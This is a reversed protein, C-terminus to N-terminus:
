WYLSLSLYIYLFLSFYLLLFTFDGGGESGKFRLREPRLFEFADPILLPHPRFGRASCERVGHLPRDMPALTGLHGHGSPEEGEFM